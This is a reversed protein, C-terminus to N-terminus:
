HAEIAEAKANELKEKEALLEDHLKVCDWSQNDETLVAKLPIPPLKALRIVELLQNLFAQNLGCFILMNEAFPEAATEAAEGEGKALELLSLHYQNPQVRRMRLGLMAFIQGLKSFKPGTCNFILVTGSKNTRKM